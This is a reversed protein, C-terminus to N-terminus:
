RDCAYLLQNARAAARQTRGPSSGLCFDMHADFNTHLGQPGYQLCGKRAAELGIAVMGQAWTRCYRYGGGGGGGYGDDYGGRREYYQALEIRADQRPGSAAGFCANASGVFQGVASADCAGARAAGSVALGAAMAALMLHTTKM